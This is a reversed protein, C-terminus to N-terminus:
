LAYVHKTKLKIHLISIVILSHTNKLKSRILSVLVGLFEGGSFTWVGSDVPFAARPKCVGGDALLAFVGSM